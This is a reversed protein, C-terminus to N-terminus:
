IQHEYVLHRIKHYYDPYESQLRYSVWQCAKIARKHAGVVHVFKKHHPTAYFDFLGHYNADMNQFLYAIQIGYKEALRAFLYQEYINNLLGVKVQQLSSKNKELFLRVESWLKQFFELDCGGMIGANAAVIPRKNDLDDVFVDPLYPFDRVWQMVVTYMEYDKEEHQAVLAASELEQSFPEWFYVDSDIHLFPEDQLSYAYIKGLAWLNEDYGNLDDLVVRYDSYPLQLKHILLDVGIRDTVLEVKDYHERARLCSLAWSMLHYQDNLWGGAMRNYFKAQGRQLSPKTWFSHVIKM